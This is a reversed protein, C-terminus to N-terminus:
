STEMSRLSSHPVQLNRKRWGTVRKGLVGMNDAIVSFHRKSKRSNHWPYSKREAICAPFWDISMLRVKETDTHFPFFAPRFSLRSWSFFARAHTTNENSRDSVSGEFRQVEDLKKTIFYFELGDLFNYSKSAMMLLYWFVWYAFPVLANYSASCNLLHNLHYIAGPWNYSLCNIFQYVANFHTFWRVREM